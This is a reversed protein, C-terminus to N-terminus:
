DIAYEFIVVLNGSAPLAATGVTIIIDEYLAGGEGPMKYTVANGSIADYGVTIPAGITAANGIETPTAVSTLTLAASYLTASNADGFSITASGLSTDTVVRIGLLAAYVPIRAVAITSGSAQAALGVNAIFVRKRGGGATVAPLSQVAGGTNGTLQAM